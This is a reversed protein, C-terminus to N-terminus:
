AVLSSSEVLIVNWCLDSTTLSHLTGLDPLCTNQAPCVTHVFINLHSHRTHKHSLLSALATSHHSSLDGPAKYVVSPNPKKRFHSPFGGTNVSCLHSKLHNQKLVIVLEWTLSLSLYCSHVLKLLRQWYNPLIHCHSPGSHYCSLHHSIDPTEM